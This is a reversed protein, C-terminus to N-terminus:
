PINIQVQGSFMGLTSKVVEYSFRIKVVTAKAAPVQKIQSGIRRTKDYIGTSIGVVDVLDYFLAERGEARGGGTILQVIDEPRKEIWIDTDFQFRKTASFKAGSLRLAWRDIRGVVATM